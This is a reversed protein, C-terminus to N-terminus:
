AGLRDAHWRLHDEIFTQIFWYSHDYDGHRRLVLEQAASAAAAELAEPRLQNSLFQDRLGQDVLIPGPFRSGRKLLECADWAAWRARDPGLYNGFAKEGWPVVVPNCIPAFASVSRYAQPNKLAITLAGHGGMSHGFVGRRGAEVPFNAEVIAPLERTVYSYMCYNRKWPEAEADLYFGAGTGFDWDDDEGPLGLGRPSTDPTVVVLGLEAAHRLANAKIMFTEETCTLGALFYLAPRSRSSATAPVFVSFKMETGTETSAHSYFGITGGFCAQESRVTVSMM